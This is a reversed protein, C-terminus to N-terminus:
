ANTSEQTRTGRLDDILKPDYSICFKKQKYTDRMVSWTSILILIQMSKSANEKQQDV